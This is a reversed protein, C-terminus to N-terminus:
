LYEASPNRPLKGCKKGWDPKELTQLYCMSNLEISYAIRHHPLPSPTRTGEQQDFNLNTSQKRILDV